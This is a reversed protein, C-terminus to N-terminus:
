IRGWTDCSTAIDGTSAQGIDISGLISSVRVCRKPSKGDSHVIRIEMDQGAQISDSSWMGRPTFYMYVSGSCNLGMSATCPNSSDNAAKGSGLGYVGIKFTNGQTDPIRLSTQRVSCTNSADGQVVAIVDGTKASSVPGGLIIACGGTTTSESVERSALSRAEELWGAVELALTNLRERRMVFSYSGVSIAASIGILVVVVLLEILTMGAQSPILMFPAESRKM